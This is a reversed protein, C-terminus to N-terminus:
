RNLGIRKIMQLAKKMNAIHETPVNDIEGFLTLPVVVEIERLSNDVAMANEIKTLAIEDYLNDQLNNSVIQEKVNDELTANSFYCKGMDIGEAGFCVKVFTDNELLEAMERLLGKITKGSVFPIGDSDKVVSSDLKAGASLGSSLHWYDLFEIKYQITM